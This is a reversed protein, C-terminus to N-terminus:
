AVAEVEPEPVFEVDRMIMRDLDCRLMALNRNTSERQKLINVRMIKDKLEEATQNLGMAIDAIKIIGWDEGIDEKSLVYKSAGGRNTQWASVVPINLEKAMARVAKAVMSYNFRPNKHNMYEPRVLELYDIMLYDVAQGRQRMQLVLARIDDVTPQQATWDKVWIKGALRERERIAAVPHSVLGTKDMGTLWQDVRQVCKNSNIELTIGLCQKGARAAAAMSGWLFSTKGVGAPAVYLALEGNATGGDLYQDMKESFGFGIVGSRTPADPAQAHQYDLVDADLIVSANVAEDLLNYAVVPNFDDDDVHTSIYTGAEFSKSRAIFRKLTRKLTHADEIYTQRLVSVASLLEDRLGLNISYSAEIDIEIMNETLDAASEDHMRTMIGLLQRATSSDFMSATAIGRLVDWNEKALMSKLM